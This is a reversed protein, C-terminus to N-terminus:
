SPTTRPVYKGRHFRVGDQALMRAMAIVREVLEPADSVFEVWTYDRGSARDRSFRIGVSARKRVSMDGRDLLRRLEAIFVRGDELTLCMELDRWVARRRDYLWELLGELPLRRWPALIRYGRDVQLKRGRLRAALFVRQFLYPIGRFPAVSPAAGPVPGDARNVHYVLLRHYHPYWQITTAFDAHFAGELYADLAEESEWEMSNSLWSAPEARLTLETLIFRSERSRLGAWLADDRPSV